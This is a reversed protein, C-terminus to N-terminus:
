ERKLTPTNAFIAMIVGQLRSRNLGHYGRIAQPESLRALRKPEGPMLRVVVVLCEGKSGMYEREFVIKTGATDSVFPLNWIQNSVPIPRGGRPCTAHLSGEKHGLM